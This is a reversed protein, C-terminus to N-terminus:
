DGGTAWAQCGPAASGVPQVPRSARTRCHALCPTGHGRHGSLVLAPATHDSLLADRGCGATLARRMTM